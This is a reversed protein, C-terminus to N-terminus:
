YMTYTRKFIRGLFLLLAMLVAINYLLFRMLVFVCALNYIRTNDRDGYANKIKGFLQEIKYRERYIEKNEEYIEKLKKRYNDRVKNRIGDKVPIVPVLGKDELLLKALQRDMGYLRDAIIYSGKDLSM